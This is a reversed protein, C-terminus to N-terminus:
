AREDLLDLWAKLKDHVVLRTTLDREAVGSLLTQILSLEAGADYMRAEVDKMQYVLLQECLANVKPQLHKGVWRATREAQKQDFKWDAPTPASVEDETVIARYAEDYVNM